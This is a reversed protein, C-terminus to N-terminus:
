PLAAGPMSKRYSQYVEHFNHGTSALAHESDRILRMFRGFDNVSVQSRQFAAELARREDDSSKLEEDALAVLVDPTWGVSRFRESIGATGEGHKRILARHLFTQVASDTSKAFVSQSQIVIRIIRDAEPTGEPPLVQAQELTALVAMASGVHASATKRQQQAPGPSDLGAALSSVATTNMLLVGYAFACASVTIGTRSRRMSRLFTPHNPQDDPHWRWRRM